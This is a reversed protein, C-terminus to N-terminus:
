DEHGARTTRSKVPIMRLTLSNNRFLRRPKRTARFSPQPLFCQMLYPITNRYGTERGTRITWIPFPQTKLCTLRVSILSQSIRVPSNKRGDKGKFGLDNLFTHTFFIHDHALIWRPKKLEIARKFEHHTISLGDECIGTGYQPTIIGLFLDCKEVAARCNELNSLNSSM